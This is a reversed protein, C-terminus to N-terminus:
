LSLRVVEVEVRLKAGFAPDLDDREVLLGDLLLDAPRERLLRLVLEPAGDAGHEGAPHVVAGDGIAAEVVDGLRQPVATLTCDITNPLM